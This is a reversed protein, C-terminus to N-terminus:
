IILKVTADASTCDDQTYNDIAYNHTHDEIYTNTTDLLQIRSVAFYMAEIGSRKSTETM